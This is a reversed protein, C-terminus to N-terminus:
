PNGKEMKLLRIDQLNGDVGESTRITDALKGMSNWADLVDEDTRPTNTKNDIIVEQWHPDPDGCENTSSAFIGFTYLSYGHPSTGNGRRLKMILDPVGDSNLDIRNEGNGISIIKIASDKIKPNSSSESSKIDRTVHSYLSAFLAFVILFIFLFNYPLPKKM